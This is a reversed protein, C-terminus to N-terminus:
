PGAHTVTGDQRLCSRDPRTSHIQICAKGKVHNISVLLHSHHKKPPVLTQFIYSELAHGVLGPTLYIM